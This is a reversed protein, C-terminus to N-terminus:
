HIAINQCSEVSVIELIYRITNLTIGCILCNLVMIAFIIKGCLLIHNMYQYLNHLILWNRNIFLLELKSANLQLVYSM